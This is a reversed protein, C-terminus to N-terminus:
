IGQKHKHERKQEQWERLRAAIRSSEYYDNLSAKQAQKLQQIASGLDGNRYHKEALAEHAGIRDGIKDSADSLLGYTEPKHNGNKIHQKLIQVAKTSQGANIHTKAYEILLPHNNPYLGLGEEITQLAQKSQQTNKFAEGLAAFYPVRADDDKILKQLIPIAALSRDLEILLLAQRYLSAADNPTDKLKEKTDQLLKRTADSKLVQVRARMLEFVIPDPNTIRGFAGARGLADSVRSSNVPHTRLFEPAQDGYYRSERQLRAFFKGMAQPDFGAAAMIEIGLRDAEEENARTFNIQNQLSGALGGAIVADVSQDSNRALLIAGLIAVAYPIGFKEAEEYARAMHRQLIHATEHAMVAALENESESFEILGTFMAIYGGPAAFANIVDQDVIFFTFEALGVDASSIVREGLSEIYHVLLADTVLIEDRALEEYLGKGLETEEVPTIISGSTDGMDPLVIGSIPFGTLPFLLLCAASLLKINYTNKVNRM